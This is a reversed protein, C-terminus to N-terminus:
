RGKRGVRRAHTYVRKDKEKGGGLRTQGQTDALHSGRPHQSQLNHHFFFLPSNVPLLMYDIRLVPSQTVAYCGFSGCVRDGGFSHYHCNEEGELRKKM